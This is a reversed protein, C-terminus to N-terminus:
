TRQWYAVAHPATRPPRPARHVNGSFRGPARALRPRSRLTLLHVMRVVCREGAERARQARQGREQGDREDEGGAAEGVLAVGVVVDVELAGQLLAHRGDADE